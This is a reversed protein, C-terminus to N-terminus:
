ARERKNVGFCCCGGRLLWKMQFERMRPWEKLGEGMEEKCKYVRM